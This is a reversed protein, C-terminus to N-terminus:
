PNGCAAAQADAGDRGPVATPCEASPVLDSELEYTGGRLGAHAPLGTRLYVLKHGRFVAVLEAPDETDRPGERLAPAASSPSRSPPGDCPEELRRCRTAGGPARAVDALAAPVGAPSGARRVALHQDEGQGTAVATWEVLVAVQALVLAMAGEAEIWATLFAPGGDLRDIRLHLVGGMGRGAHCAFRWSLALSPPRRDDVRPPSSWHLATM